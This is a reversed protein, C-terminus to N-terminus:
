ARELRRQRAMALLAPGTALMVWLQKGYLITIFAEVTLFGVLAVLLGRALLGSQIDGLREFARAARLACVLCTAAIALFLALGVVGLEALLQLYINHVQQPRDVIYQDQMVAGPELLYHISSVPFNGAGVGTLPQDDVMRMGIEWLDERGSGGGATLGTLRDVTSQPALAGLWVVVALAAISVVVTARARRGPGAVFPLVLLAAALGVMASRSGTLTVSAICLPCAIGALIRGGKALAQDFALFGSLVVAVVLLGGLENPKSAQAWSGTSTRAM